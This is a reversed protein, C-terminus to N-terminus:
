EVKNGGSINENIQNLGFGLIIWFIPAVSVVSINFTAQITYSLISAFLACAVLNNKQSYLKKLTIWLLVLYFVVYPFGITVFSQLYESHAKDLIKKDGETHETKVKEKDFAEYFTDPGTGIIISNPLLPITNLYIFGRQSGIKKIQNIDSSSIRSIERKVGFVRSSVYSDLNLVGFLLSCSFVLIAFRKINNNIINRFLIITTITAFFAGLWASRTMSAILLYFLLNSSILFILKTTKLYWIVSLTFMMAAYSGSFNRNTFTSFAHRNATGRISDPLLEINYFQFIGYMSIPISSILLLTILKHMDDKSFLKYSIFCIVLYISLIFMGEYRRMFGFYVIEKYPSLISSLIIWMLMGFMSIEQISPKLRLKIGIQKEQSTKREDMKGLLYVGSILLMIFYTFLVKPFTHGDKFPMIHSLMPFHVYPMLVAYFMILKVIIRKYNKPFENVKKMMGKLKKNLM